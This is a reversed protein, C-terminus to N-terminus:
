KGDDPNQAPTTMIELLRGDTVQDFHEYFQGVANFAPPARLCVVLDADTALAQLTDEPGVPLAAILRAPGQRRVAWLAARLTAGTAVGDDTVVVTRGAIPAKPRVARYAEARRHLLELQRTQEEALYERIDGFRGVLERHLFVHGDESVAGIALESWGPASLKHALVVDFEAGLGQALFSATVAGGRPVGLVLTAPDALSRLAEALQEAADRRDRFPASSHSIIQLDGM